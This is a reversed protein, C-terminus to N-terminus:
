LALAAAVMLEEGSGSICWAKDCQRAKTVNNGRGPADMKGERSYYNTISTATVLELM